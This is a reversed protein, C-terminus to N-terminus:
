LPRGTVTTPQPSSLEAISELLSLVLSLFSLTFSIGSQVQLWFYLDNVSRSRLYTTNSTPRYHLKIASRRMVAGAGEIRAVAAALSVTPPREHPLELGAQLVLKRPDLALAALVAPIDVDRQYEGPHLPLDVGPYPARNWGFLYWESWGCLESMKM